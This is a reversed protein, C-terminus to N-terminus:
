GESRSPPGIKLKRELAKGLTDGTGRGRFEREIAARAEDCIYVRLLKRPVESKRRGTAARPKAASEGSPDPEPM